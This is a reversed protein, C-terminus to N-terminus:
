LLHNCSASCSYTPCRAQIVPYKGLLRGFRLMRLARLVSVGVGSSFCEELDGAARFKCQMEEILSPSEYIGVCVVLVDLLEFPGTLYRRGFVWLKLGLELVFLMNLSLNAADLGGHFALYAKDSAWARGPVSGRDHEAALLLIGSVIGGVTTKDLVASNALRRAGMKLRMGFILVRLGFGVGGPVMQTAAASGTMNRLTPGAMLGPDPVTVAGFGAQGTGRGAAAQAAAQAAAAKAALYAAREKARRLAAGVAESALKNFAKWTLGGGRGSRMRGGYCGMRALNDRVTIAQAPTLSRAFIRALADIANASHVRWKAFAAALKPLQIRRVVPLMKNRRDMDM